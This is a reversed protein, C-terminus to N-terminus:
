QALQERASAFIQVMLKTDRLKPNVKAYIEDLMAPDRAQVALKTAEDIKELRTYWDVKAPLTSLRAVHKAAEDVAGAEFCVKVFSEPSLHQKKEKAMRDLEGWNRSQVLARLKLWSFRKDSVKFESQLKKAKKEESNAILCHITDSLSMDIYQFRGDVNLELERQIALLKIQEETAKATFQSNRDLQLDDMTLELTRLRKGLTDEHYAALLDVNAAEIRQGTGYYFTKLNEVSDSYVGDRRLYAAYLPMARPTSQLISFLESKTESSEKLKLLVMYALNTDGSDIAKGLAVQPEGMSMLLPVQDTASAEHDLLDIALQRRGAKEAEQAPDVFSGGPCKALKAVIQECLQADPTDDETRIKTCAWHVAVRHRGLGVYECIQWALKYQRRLILRDVIVNHQLRQYQGFTVYVGVDPARILNLIRINKCTDVYFGSDYDDCFCKGYAAAKLLKQQSALDWPNTAADICTNVADELDDYIARIHDDAKASNREFLEEYADFLMASPDVSGAQWAKELCDPVRQLFECSTGTLIRVGDMEAVVVFASDEYRYNIWDGEPGVMFLIKDYALVVSDGGCWVLQNPATSSNTAFDLINEMQETRYVMVAGAETFCALFKGDASCVMQSFPGAADFTDVTDKDVVSIGGDVTSLLVEPTGRGTLEPEIITMCTPAATLYPDPLLECHAHEFDCVWFLQHERTLLVLGSGWIFCEAVGQDRVDRGASFQYLYEGHMNYLVGKGDDQVCLLEENDTWGMAAIEEGDWMMEALKRGGSTYVYIANLPVAAQGIKLPKSKDRMLAVPGGFKAGVVKFISLDVEGWLM